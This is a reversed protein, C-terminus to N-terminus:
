ALAVGVAAGAVVALGFVLQFIGVVKAPRAPQRSWVLQAVAVALVCAAGLALDSDIVVAVAAVVVGVLQAVDSVVRPTPDRKVRTVQVRAFSVSAIARGALMVSAAIAVSTAGAGAVIVAAACATMGVGGCVEPVLRRGRSRADFWLEVLFLPAAALWAWLWSAGADAIAVVVAAVLLVLELSVLAVARNTRALRRGRRRDVLVLKLPTRVLFALFAAVAVAVGAGSWAVLLGLLAPEATLGWGGHEKPLLLASWRPASGDTSAVSPDPVDAFSPATEV